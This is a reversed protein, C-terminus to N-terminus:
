SLIHHRSTCDGRVVLLRSGRQPKPLAYALQLGFKHQCTGQPVTVIYRDAPVELKQGEQPHALPDLM